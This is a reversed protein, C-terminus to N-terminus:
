VLNLHSQITSLFLQNYNHTAVVRLSYIFILFVIMMLKLHFFRSGRSRVNNRLFYFIGIMLAICGLGDCIGDVYYGMTGIESREGRINRKARAVHGDLDDFFTRIQFM